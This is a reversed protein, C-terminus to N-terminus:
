RSPQRTMPSSPLDVPAPPLLGRVRAGRLRGGLVDAHREDFVRALSLDGQVYESHRVAVGAFRTLGHASTGRCRCRDIGAASAGRHAPPAWCTTMWGLWRITRSSSRLACRSVVSESVGACMLLALWRPFGFSGLCGVEFRCYVV